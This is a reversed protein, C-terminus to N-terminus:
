ALDRAHSGFDLPVGNAVGHVGAEPEHAARKSLERHHGGIFEGSGGRPEAM